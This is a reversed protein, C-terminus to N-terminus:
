WALVASKKNQEQSELQKLSVQTPIGQQANHLTFNSRQLIMEKQMEQMKEEIEAIKQNQQEAVRQQEEEKILATQLDLPKGCKSCIENDPSNSMECIQCIKPINKEEKEQTKIGLHEFIAADVDANIMHVYKAPM